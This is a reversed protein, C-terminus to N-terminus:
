RRCPLPQIEISNCSCSCISPFPTLNGREDKREQNIINHMPNETINRKRRQGGRSRRRHHKREDQQLIPGKAPNLLRGTQRKMMLAIAKVFHLSLVLRMSITELKIKTSKSYEYERRGMNSKALVTDLYM